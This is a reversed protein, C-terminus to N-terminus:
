FIAVFASDGSLRRLQTTRLGSSLAAGLMEVLERRKQFAGREEARERKCTTCGGCDVTQRILSSKDQSSLESSESGEGRHLLLPTPPFHTAGSSFRGLILDPM